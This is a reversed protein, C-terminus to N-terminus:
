KPINVVIVQPRYIKMNATVKAISFSNCAYTLVMKSDEFETHEKTAYCFTNKDYVPNDPKMEPFDFIVQPNSWPGIASDATRIVIHKSPFELGPSIAIWKKLAAHYRVTMESIAQDIVHKADGHPVGSHWNGDNALYEWSTRPNELKDLSVRFVAVYGKGQGESVQTYLLVFKGDPVVSVGPWLDGKTLDQMSIKWQEPLASLNTIKVWKTGAIEFGFADNPKAGPSNCVILLSLYLVDDKCYGDLPWYWVDERGTDFFSRPKAAEPNRWYYQITCGKARQCTTIGVSNRVMTKAKTRLTTAADGVFTDGFLWLSKGPGLPISYAGDAGLWGEAYPFKPLPRDLSRDQPTPQDASSSDLVPSALGCSTFLLIIAPVLLRLKM